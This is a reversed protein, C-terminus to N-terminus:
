KQLKWGEDLSDAQEEAGMELLVNRMDEEVHDPLAKVSRAEEVIVSDVSTYCHFCMSSFGSSHFGKSSMLIYSSAVVVQVMIM